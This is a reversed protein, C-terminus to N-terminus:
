TWVRSSLVGVINGDSAYGGYIVPAVALSDKFNFLFHKSLKETMIKTGVLVQKFQRMGEEDGDFEEEPIFDEADDPDRNFGLKQFEKWNKNELTAAAKAGEFNEKKIGLAKLCALEPDDGPGGIVIVEGGDSSESSYMMQIDELEPMAAILQDAVEKAGPPADAMAGHQVDNSCLDDEGDPGDWDDRRKELEFATCSSGCVYLKLEEPKQTKAADGAKAPSYGDRKMKGILSAKYKLANANTGHKKTTTKTRGGVTGSEVITTAGSVKIQFFLGMELREFPSDEPKGKKADPEEAERKGGGVEVYGEKKKSGIMKQMFAKAKDLDPWEKRSERGATGIRGYTVLTDHEGDLAITWFKNHTGKKMELRTEM